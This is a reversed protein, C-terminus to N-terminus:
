NGMYTPGGLSPDQQLRWEREKLYQLLPHPEIRLDTVAGCGLPSPRQYGPFLKERKLEDAGYVLPLAPPIQPSAMYLSPNYSTPNGWQDFVDFKSANEQAHYQVPLVNAQELNHKERYQRLWESSTMRRTPPYNDMFGRPEHTAVWSSTSSVQLAGHYDNAKSWGASTRCDAFNSQISSFWVADDPLLPASPVPPLYTPSSLNIFTSKPESNNVSGEDEGISLGALTTSAMEVIPKWGHKSINGTKERDNSLSGRNLVWASLSPPGASIPIGLLPHASTDKVHPEQHEFSKKCRSSYIDAYFALPDNEAKTQEILLSMARPLCEDSSVNKYRSGKPSMQDNMDVSTYLPVSNYRSLPKFLIVEEEDTAVSKGNVCPNSPSAKLIQEGCEKTAMYVHQNPEKFKLDTSPSEVKELEKREPFESSEGSYFQRGLKDYLIWKGSDNSREAIKMAANTIRCARFEAGSEFSDIHEWPTSFYLSMHARAVPAFGRLEYDEWLPTGDPSMAEGRKVNLQKLLEIFVGFFYCMASRCKEDVGYVEAEDLMGLLWEVFVLVAPLLPCLYSQTAKLCRDVLRGMFVLAAAIAFQTRAIHEMDNKDKSRKVQPGHILNEIIFILISAVQLARFPGTRASDLCWYSELAAKLKTDDLAMLADLERMASAFACPLEEFSSKLFFFSMTRVLLSWLETDVSRSHEAKLINCNLFDANSQSKTQFNSRESPKLFDFHAEGCLSNLHSSRNREMLLILNDWADPFPEEVALSRVCHYLALFEDGVYTALVALQNHPNGSDPWIMTAELYHSAAVSWNREQIDCKEYQERYRALDGLCVLFRHCLFQCKQVKKPTVSTSMAGKKYSDEPLSYCKRIKLILNQYFETAQSLFSKFGAIHKDDIIQVSSANQTVLNKSEGDASCKKIIKRFEDIHKYHLKWLSYEVDQVEVHERDNLIIKEYSSRVKRYLDQVDSHLLSKTYILAWLQKELNGVVTLVGQKEKQETSPVPSNTSM